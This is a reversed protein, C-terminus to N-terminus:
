SSLPQVFFLQPPAKNLKYIETFMASVVAVFPHLVADQMLVSIFMSLYRALSLSSFKSLSLSTLHTDSHDTQRDAGSQV